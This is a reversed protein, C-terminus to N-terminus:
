TRRRQVSPGGGPRLHRSRRVHRRGVATPVRPEDARGRTRCRRGDGRGPGAARQRPRDGRRRRGAVEIAVARRDTGVGPDVVALVVGSPVYGICRALALAGARVDFPAIEHTLDVVAVHPAIDRIVAKVVGVFEDRNGYDTLFSVTDYRRPTSGNTVVCWREDCRQARPRATMSRCAVPRSSCPGPRSSPRHWGGSPVLGTPAEPPYVM